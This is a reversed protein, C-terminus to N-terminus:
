GNADGAPPPPPASGWPLPSPPNGPAPPAPPKQEAQLAKMKAATEGRVSEPVVGLVFNAAYEDDQAMRLFLVTFAPHHEFNFRTEANKVFLDGQREGYCRLLLAKFQEILAVNDQAAQIREIAGALGGAEMEIIEIESLAFRAKFVKDEGSFPDKYKIDEVLM